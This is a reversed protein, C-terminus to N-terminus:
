PTGTVRRWNDGNFKARTVRLTHHSFPLRQERRARYSSSQSSDTAFAQLRRPRTAPTQFFRPFNPPPFSLLPALFSNGRAGEENGRAQNEVMKKSLGGWLRLRKIQKLWRWPLAQHGLRQTKVGEAFFFRAILCKKVMTCHLLITRRGRM